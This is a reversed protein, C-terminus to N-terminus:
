TNMRNGEIFQESCITVIGACAEFRCASGPWHGVQGQWCSSRGGRPGGERRRCAATVADPGQGGVPDPSKRVESVEALEVDLSVTQSGDPATASLRLTSGQVERFDAAMLMDLSLADSMTAMAHRHVNRTATGRM